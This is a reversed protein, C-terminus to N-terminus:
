GTVFDNLTIVNEYIEVEEHRVKMNLLYNQLLSNAVCSLHYFTLMM